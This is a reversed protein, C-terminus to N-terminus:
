KRRPGVSISTVLGDSRHKYKVVFKRGVVETCDKRCRVRANADNVIWKAIEEVDKIESM